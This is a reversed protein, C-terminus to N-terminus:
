EYYDVTFLAPESIQEYIVITLIPNLHLNIQNVHLNICYRYIEAHQTPKLSASPGPNAPGAEDQRFAWASANLSPKALWLTAQPLLPQL